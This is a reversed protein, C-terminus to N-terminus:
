NRSYCTNQFSNWKEIFAEAKTSIGLFSEMEEHSPCKEIPKLEITDYLPESLQINLHVTKNNQTLEYFAEQILASNMKSNDNEDEVLSYNNECFNQFLGKQNISQGDGIELGNQQRDATLVLLPVNQYYSEAIAPAYNLTATGSTCIIAVPKNKQQSIGLAFYGASREDVISYCNFYSNNTFSIIFPANRSGPSIIINSVGKAKCHKIISQASPITSYKM